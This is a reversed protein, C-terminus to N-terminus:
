IRRDKENKYDISILHTCIICSLTKYKNNM